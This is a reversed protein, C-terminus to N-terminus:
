FDKIALRHIAESQATEIMERNGPIDYLRSLEIFLAESEWSPDGSSSSTANPFKRIEILIDAIKNFRKRLRPLAKQLEEKNEIKRLESALKGTEAEGQCRLDELTTPSCGSLFALCFLIRKM